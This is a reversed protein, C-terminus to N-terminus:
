DAFLRKGTALNVLGTTSGSASAYPIWQVGVLPAEHLAVWGKESVSGKTLFKRKIAVCVIAGGAYQRAVAPDTTYEPFKPLTRPKPASMGMVQTLAEEETPAAPELGPTGSTDYGDATNFRAIRRATDPVTGRWLIVIDEAGAAAVAQETSPDPIGGKSKSASSSKEAM